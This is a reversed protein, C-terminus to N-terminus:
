PFQLALNYSARTQALPKGHRDTIQGRPAPMSFQFTRAQQQTEWTPRPNEVIPENSKKSVEVAAAFRKTAGTSADEHVMQVSRPQAGDAGQAEDADAFKSLLRTNCFAVIIVCPFFLKPIIIKM